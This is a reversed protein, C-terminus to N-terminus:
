WPKGDGEDRKLRGIAEQAKAIASTLNGMSEKLAGVVKPLKLAQMGTFRQPAAAIAATGQKAIKQADDVARVLLPIIQAAAASTPMGNAATKKGMRRMQVVAAAVRVKAVIANVAGYFHDFEAIESPSFCVPAELFPDIETGAWASFGAGVDAMSVCKEGPEIEDWARGPSDEAGQPAPPLGALSKRVASALVPRMPHTLRGGAQGPTRGAASEAITAAMNAWDKRSVLISGQYLKVSDSSRTLTVTVEAERAGGDASGDRYRKLEVALMAEAAEIGVLPYGKRLLAAEVVERLIESGDAEPGGAAVAIPLLALNAPPIFGDMLTSKPVSAAGGRGRRGGRRGRPGEEDRFARSESGSHLYFGIDFGLAVGSIVQDAGKAYYGRASASLKIRESDKLPVALAAIMGNAFQPRQGLSSDTRWFFHGGGLGLELRRIPRFKVQYAILSLDKRGPSVAIHQSVARSQLAYDCSVEAGWRGAYYGELFFGLGPGLYTSSGEERRGARYSEGAATVFASPRAGLSLASRDWFDGATARLWPAGLIVFLALLRWIGRRVAQPRGM